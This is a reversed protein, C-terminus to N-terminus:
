LNRPRGEERRRCARFERGTRRLSSRCQHTFDAYHRKLLLDYEESNENELIPTPGFIMERILAESDSAHLKRKKPNKANSKANGSARRANNAEDAFVQRNRCRLGFELAAGPM